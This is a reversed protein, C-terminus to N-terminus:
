EAGEISNWDISFLGETEVVYSTDSETEMIKMSIKDRSGEGVFKIEYNNKKGIAQIHDAIVVVDDEQEMLDAFDKINEGPNDGNIVRNMKDIAEDKSFAEIFIKSHVRVPLEYSFDVTYRETGDDKLHSLGVIEKEMADDVEKEFAELNKSESINGYVCGIAEQVLETPINFGLEVRKDTLMTTAMNNVSRGYLMERFLKVGEIASDPYVSGALMDLDKESLAVSALNYDKSDQLLLEQIFETTDDPLEGAKYRAMLERAEKSSETEVNTVKYEKIERM